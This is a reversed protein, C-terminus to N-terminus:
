SQRRSSGSSGAANTPRIYMTIAAWDSEAIGRTDVRLGTPRVKHQEVVHIRCFFARRSGGTGCGRWWCGDAVGVEQRESM